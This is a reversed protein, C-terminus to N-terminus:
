EGLYGSFYLESNEQSFIGAILSFGGGVYEVKFTNTEMFELLPDVDSRVAWGNENADNFFFSIVGEENITYGYYFEALFRTGNQTVWMDVLLSQASQDFIYNIENLTLAYQGNVLNDAAQNYKIIYEDSQGPLPDVGSNQPVQILTYSSGLVSYLPTSPEFIYLGDVSVIDESASGLQVTYTGKDADWVFEDVTYGEVQLSEKLTIGRTTFEFSSRFSEVGQEDETLYQAGMLRIVPHFAVTVIKDDPLTLRLGEEESIYHLMDRLAGGTFVVADEETAPLFTISSGKQIGQLFVTDGSTEGFAFEFDSKLGEGNGGGNVDGDPDAPLHIYSYTDFSLTPRQLAKLVWTGSMVDGATTENFDAAMAVTGDDNFDFYYLFNAGSATHLTAKWGFEAETLMSTYAALSQRVREDPSENFVPDYERDCSFLATAFVASALLIFFRINKHIIM